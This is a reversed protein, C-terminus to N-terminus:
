VFIQIKKGIEYVIKRYKIANVLINENQSSLM